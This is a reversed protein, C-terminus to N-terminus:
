LGSLTEVVEVVVVEELGRWGDGPLVKASGVTNVHGLCGIGAEGQVLQM